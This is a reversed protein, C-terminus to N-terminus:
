GYYTCCTASTKRHYRSRLLSPGGLHLSLFILYISLPGLM